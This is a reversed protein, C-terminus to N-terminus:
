EDSEMTLMYGFGKLTLVLRPNAPDEEIKRRLRQIHVAVTAIDGYENGWVTEYLEESSRARGRHKALDILLEIEKPSLSVPVPPQDASEKRLMRAEADLRYIGIRIEERDSTYVNKRRLHARVRAALVKPSFPKSVFDDAGFGFGLIMDADDTRASVIIVPFSHNKRLAQLVEYGDMGPLNIDLIALDIDGRAIFKLGEEGSPCSITDIGEKSLYLSILEAIEPEDEIVLVRAQMEDEVIVHFGTSYKECLYM